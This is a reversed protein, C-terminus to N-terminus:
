FGGQGSSIYDPTRGVAEAEGRCPPSKSVVQVKYELECHIKKKVSGILCYVAQMIFVTGCKM